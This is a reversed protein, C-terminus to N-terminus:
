RSQLESTHEESRWLGAAGFHFGPGGVNSVIEDLENGLVHHLDFNESIERDASSNHMAISAGSAIALPRLNDWDTFIQKTEEIVVGPLETLDKKASRLFHDSKSLERRKDELANTENAANKSVAAQIKTREPVQHKGFQNGCGAAFILVVCFSRLRCENWCLKRM